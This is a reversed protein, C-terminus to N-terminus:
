ISDEFNRMTGQSSLWEVFLIQQLVQRPFCFDWYLELYVNQTIDKTSNQTAGKLFSATKRVDMWVGVNRWASSAM